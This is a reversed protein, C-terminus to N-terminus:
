NKRNPLRPNLFNRHETVVVENMFNGKYINELLCRVIWNGNYDCRVFIAGDDSLHIKALRLRNELMTAWCSDKYNTRYDFRDSGDLNFPPDIYICKVREKYKPLLTNLAQYNESHVLEGDLATDLDGM